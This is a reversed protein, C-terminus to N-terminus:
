YMFCIFTNLELCDNHTGVVLGFESNSNYTNTLMSLNSIVCVCVCMKGIRYVLGRTM